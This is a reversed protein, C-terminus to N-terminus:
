EERTAGLAPLRGLRQQVTAIEVATRAVKSIRMEEVIADLQEGRSTYSDDRFFFVRRPPAKFTAGTSGLLKGQFYVAVSSPDTSVFALYHRERGRVQGSGLVENPYAQIGGNKYYWGDDNSDDFGFLKGWPTTSVPTLVIEITYPHTLLFAHESWDIGGEDSPFVHLAQGSSTPVFRGGLLRAHRANGSRDSVNDSFEFRALVAGDNELVTTSGGVLPLPRFLWRAADSVVPAKTVITGTIATAVVTISVAAKLSLAEVISPASTPRSAESGLSALSDVVRKLDSGLRALFAWFAALIALTRTKKAVSQKQKEAFAVLRALVDRVRVSGPGDFTVVSSFVYDHLCRHRRDFLATLLGAGLLDVLGYGISARGLAWLFQPKRGIRRVRLGVLAKGATQGVLWVLISHYAICIALLLLYTLPQPLFAVVSALILGDIFWALVRLGHPAPLYNGEQSAAM